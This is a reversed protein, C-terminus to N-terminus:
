PPPPFRFQGALTFALLTDEVQAGRGINHVVLPRQGDPSRRHTVIAIHALNGPLVQTVLDGPRFDGPQEGTVLRAGKRTLFTELNPVRRHDISSDPRALGWLRPYAAFARAMDEHVLRQLDLGFADRYARVVVDTCVGRSRDLDGMPYPLRVYAPDYAVTLGVQAEAAAILRLAWPEPHSPSALAAALRRFPVAALGSGAVVTVAGAVVHRRSFM